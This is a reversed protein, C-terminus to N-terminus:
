TNTQVNAETQKAEEQKTFEQLNLEEIREERLNLNGKWVYSPNLEIFGRSQKVVLNRERLVKLANCVGSQPINTIDALQKQTVSVKNTSNLMSGNISILALLVKMAALTHIQLAENIFESHVQTYQLIGKYKYKPMLRITVNDSHKINGYKDIYPKIHKQQM